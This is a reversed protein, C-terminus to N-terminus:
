DDLKTRPLLEANITIELKNGTRGSRRDQMSNQEKIAAVSVKPDLKLNDIAIQHLMNMRQADTPGSQYIMVAQWLGVIQQCQFSTLLDKVVGHARKLRKAIANISEGDAHSKCAKIEWPKLDKTLEVIQRKLENEQRRSFENEPYYEDDAVVTPVAKAAFDAPISLESM